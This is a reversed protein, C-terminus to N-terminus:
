HAQELLTPLHFSYNVQINVTLDGEGTEPDPEIAALIEAPLDEVDLTVEELLTLTAISEKTLRLYTSGTITTDTQELASYSEWELVPAYEMLESPLDYEEGDVVLVYEEPQFTVTEPDPKSFDVERPHIWQVTSDEAPCIDYKLLLMNDGQILPEMLLSGSVTLGANKETGEMMDTHWTVDDGWALIEARTGDLEVMSVSFEGQHDFVMNLTGTTMEAKTVLVSTWKAYGVGITCLVFTLLVAIGYIRRSYAYMRRM